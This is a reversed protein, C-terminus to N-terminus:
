ALHLICLGSQCLLNIGLGPGAALFSNFFIYISKGEMTSCDKFFSAVKQTKYKIRKKCKRSIKFLVFM